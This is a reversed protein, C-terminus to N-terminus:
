KDMEVQILDLKDLKEQIRAREMVIDITNWRDLEAQLETRERNIKDQGYTVRSVIIEQDKNEGNYYVQRVEVNNDSVRTIIEM